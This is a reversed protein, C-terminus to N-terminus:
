VPKVFKIGRAHINELTEKGEFYRSVAKKDDLMKQFLSGKKKNAGDAAEAVPESATKNM